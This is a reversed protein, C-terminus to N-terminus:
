GVRVYRAGERRVEGELMLNRIQRRVTVPHCQLMEILAAASQPEALAALIRRRTGQNAWPGVRLAGPGIHKNAWYSIQYKTIGRAVLFEHLTNASAGDRKLEIYRDLLRRQEARPTTSLNCAKRLSGFPLLNYDSFFRVLCTQLAEEGRADLEALFGQQRLDSTLQAIAEGRLVARPTYVKREAFSAAFAPNSKAWRYPAGASFGLQRAATRLSVGTRILELFADQATTLGM